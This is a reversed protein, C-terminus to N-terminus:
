RPTALKFQRAAYLIGGLTLLSSIIQVLLKIKEIDMPALSKIHNRYIM